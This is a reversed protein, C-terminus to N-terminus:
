GKLELLHKAESSYRYGCKLEIEEINSFSRGTKAEQTRTNVPSGGWVYSFSIKFRWTGQVTKLVRGHGGLHM